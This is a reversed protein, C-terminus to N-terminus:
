APNSLDARYTLVERRVEQVADTGSRFILGGEAAGFAEDLLADPTRLGDLDSLERLPRVTWYRAIDGVVVQSTQLQAPDDVKPIAEALKRLLEELAERGGPRVRVDTVAALPWDQPQIEERLYSLDPRDTAIVSEQALTAKGVEELWSAGRSEGFVRQILEATQGQAQIEAFNETISVFHVMPGQGFLTAHATWRLPDGKKQAKQALEQVLEEYRRMAEPRIQVSLVNSLPM